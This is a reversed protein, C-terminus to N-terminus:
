AVQTKGQTHVGVIFCGNLTTDFDRILPNLGTNNGESGNMGAAIYNTRVLNLM